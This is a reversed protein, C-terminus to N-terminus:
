DCGCSPSLIGDCCVARGNSCGCVGEHHSCCGRRLDPFKNRATINKSTQANLACGTNAKTNITKANDASLQFSFLIVSTMFFGKIM